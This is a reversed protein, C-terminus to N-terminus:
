LILPQESFFVLFSYVGSFKKIIKKKKWLLYFSPIGLYLFGLIINGPNLYFSLLAGVALLFLVIFFDKRKNKM